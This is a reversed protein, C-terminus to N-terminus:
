ENLSIKQLALSFAGFAPEIRPKVIEALPCEQKVRKQFARTLYKGANFVGGVTAVKVYNKNMKLRKAVVCALEGLTTGAGQLISRSVEDYPAAKSVLRALSATEDVTLGTSYIMYVLDELNKLRFKQKVASVLKTRPGRGDVARFAANLARRGIDYGSGHDDFLAGWGGVRVYRGTSNIGAAVCGTGSEVMIGPQNEFASQLYAISDHVVFTRRAINTKRVFRKAAREDKPSDVGALAVVAIEARRRGIAAQERAKCVARRISSIVRASGVNQYNSSGGQGRGLVKGGATGLIAITKTAGGDIGIVYKRRGRSRKSM